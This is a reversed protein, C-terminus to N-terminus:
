VYDKLLGGTLSGQVKSVDDPTGTAMIYGGKDGGSPGLDIIHDACAILDMNHEIVIVTNGEDRLRYLIKLLKKVDEYHLGTTPEDFVYITKNAKGKGLETALKLRQAEGGSLTTASQGLKLYGLGVSDIVKLMNHIKKEGQFVQLADSLEMDLVDSISYGKYTIELVEDLYRSGKCVHCTTWIDPMFNLPTQIKGAGKCVPCQGKKGNFSFHEKGFKREKAKDQNAYLNRILDFVGTYTAPNSRPTRGIPKQSVEILDSVRDSISTSKHTADRDQVYIKEYVGCREVTQDLAGKIAPVLTRSILSSKGSGSVGTVGIFRGLPLAVNIDKLNNEKVGEICVQGYDKLEVETRQSLGRKASTAQLYKGTISIKDSMIADISGEAVVQGGYKGAGPGIDIVHDAMMIMDREHEVMIITNDRDRLEKLESMLFQYDVPHLGMSPEDLVYLINTLNTAFQSALRIRQGEGGSLSPISRDLTLYALGVDEIKSLLPIMANLIPRVQVSKRPPLAHYLDMLWVKLSSVTMSAALPYRLGEVEVLRGEEALREGHCLSCESKSLFGDIVKNMASSGGTNNEILRKVIIMVGEAPREIVGSRGKADYTLTVKRGNSGYLLEEKFGEPLENYPLELDVNMDYALALVEGRMWNANPKKAHKRLDGWVKSAGDLISVNPNSIVKQEDITLEEGLGKCKPCMSEPNNNSFMATSMDFFVRDCTYCFEKTQLRISDQDDITVDYYDQNGDVLEPNVSVEHNKKLAEVLQKIEKHSLAQIAQQCEPCHRTGITVYLNRLYDIIGTVTGVTSRPNQGLSKQEIAIAPQLGVVREVSPKEYTRNRDSGMIDMFQRQSETYITDFALSSKGSGSPGTIVTIQNKSIKVDVNRLNNQCADVVHIINHEFDEERQQEIERVEKELHNMAILSDIQDLPGPTLGSSVDITAAQAFSKYKPWHNLWKPLYVNSDVNKLGIYPMFAVVVSQNFGDFGCIRIRNNSKDVDLVEVITSAIPNPRVPSRTAFIGTEPANEYPPHCTTSQRFHKKEFRNFWWISRYYGKGVSGLDVDEDFRLFQNGNDLEFKGIPTLCSLEDDDHLESGILHDSKRRPCLKVHDENPFYPKIDYIMIPTQHLAASEDISGTDVSVLATVLGGDQDIDKWEVILYSLKDELGYFVLGHSFHRLGLLAKVYAQDVKIEIINKTMVMTAITVIGYKPYENKAMM